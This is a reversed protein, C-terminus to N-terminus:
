NFHSEVAYKTNEAADRASEAANKADDIASKIESINYSLSDYSFRDGISSMIEEVKSLISSTDYKISDVDSEVDSSYINWVNNKINEIDSSLDDIRSVSSEINEIDSSLNDIRSIIDFGDLSSQITDNMDNIQESLDEKFSRISAEVDEFLSNVREVIQDDTLKKEIRDFRSGYGNLAIMISVLLEKENMRSLTRRDSEIDERTHQIRRECEQRISVIAQSYQANMAKKENEFTRRASLIEAQAQQRTSNVTLQAQASVKEIKKKLNSIMLMLIAIVVVLSFIIGLIVLTSNEM